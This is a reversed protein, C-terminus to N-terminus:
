SFSFEHHGLYARLSTVTAERDFAHDTTARELVPTTTEFGVRPM